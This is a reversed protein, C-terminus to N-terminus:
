QKIGYAAATTPAGPMTKLRLEPMRFLYKAAFTLMAGYFNRVYRLSFQAAPAMAQQIVFTRAFYYTQYGALRLRYSLDIDYGFIPFREDFADVEMLASRRLLMFCSNLVDTETNEFEEDWGPEYHPSFLKSRSFLRSLGTFRFFKVWEEPMAKKSGKVFHGEADLVRVTIGATHEHEDMFSLTKDLTDEGNVISPHMVLIYSGKAKKIAQNVPASFGENKSNAMVQVEGFESQLMHLSRDSSANDIVMIEADLHQLAPRLATLSRHLLRCQNHNVIIVSLQM